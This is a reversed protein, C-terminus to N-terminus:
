PREQRLSYESVEATRVRHQLVYRDSATAM